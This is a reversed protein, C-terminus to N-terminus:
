ASAARSSSATASSSASSRPTSTAPRPCAGACGDAPSRRSRPPSRRPRPRTRTPRRRPDPRLLQMWKKPVSIFVTPREDGCTGHGPSSRPTRSSATPRAGSSAGPLELFRGFTHFLPLFCLFVDDEGIEPLALARAFRKFVINRHSFTIGKPMGTTGSTYMVTALDDIRAAHRRDALASASVGSAAELVAEFPLAGGVGATEGDLAILTPARDLTAHCAVVKALQARNSVVVTGAKSHRLIYAVDDASSTAPVMVDVLGSSLCALDTLAMELRNESLIAVPGREGGGTLALLGRAVLETRGAVQHWSLASEGRRGPLRFLTRGSYAAAREAFLEGFTLHSAEVLALIRAAWDDTTGDAAIRRLVPPRRLLDLLDWAARRADLGPPQAELRGLTRQAIGALLELAVTQLLEAAAPERLTRVAEHDAAQCPGPGTAVAATVTGTLRQLAEDPSLASLAELDVSASHDNHQDM